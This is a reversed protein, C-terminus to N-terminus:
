RADRGFRALVRVPRPEDAGVELPGSCIGDGYLREGWGDAAADLVDLEADPISTDGRHRPRRGM